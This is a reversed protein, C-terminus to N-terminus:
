PVRGSESGRFILRRARATRTVTAGPRLSVRPIHASVSRNDSNSLPDRTRTGGPKPRYSLKASCWAPQHFWAWMRQAAVLYRRSTLRIRDTIRRM